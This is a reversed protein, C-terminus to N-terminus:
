RRRRSDKAPPAAECKMLASSVFEARAPADAGFVCLPDRDHLMHRGALHVVTGGAVPGVAPSLSRVEADVDFGFSVADGGGFDVDFSVVGPFHAPTVCRLVVHGVCRSATVFRRGPLRARGTGAADSYIGNTTAVLREGCTQVREVVEARVAVAGFVCTPEADDMSEVVALIETGGSAPGTSPYVDAAVAAHGYKFSAAGVSYDVLNFTTELAAAGEVRAPSACLMAAGRDRRALVPAVTGFRCAARGINEAADVHIAVLVGGEASGRAPSAGRTAPVDGFEFVVGAATFQQGEDAASVELSVVGAVRAPSEGRSSRPHFRRRRPRRRPASVACRERGRRAAFTEVPSSSSPPDKSPVSTPRSPSFRLRRPTTSIWRVSAEGTRARLRWASTDRPSRRRAAFCRRRRVCIRM